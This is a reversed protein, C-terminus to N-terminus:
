SRTRRAGRPANRQISGEWWNSERPQEASDVSSSTFALLEERQVWEIRRHSTIFGIRMPEIAVVIRANVIDGLTM